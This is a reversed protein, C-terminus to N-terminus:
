NIEWFIGVQIDSNGLGPFSTLMEDNGHLKQDFYGM